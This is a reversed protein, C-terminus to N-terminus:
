QTSQPASEGGVSGSRLAIPSFAAQRSVRWGVRSPRM